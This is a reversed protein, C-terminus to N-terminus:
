LIRLQFQFLLIVKVILKGLTRNASHSIREIFYQQKLVNVIRNQGRKSGQCSRIVHDRVSKLDDM